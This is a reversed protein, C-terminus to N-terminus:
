KPIVKFFTKAEDLKNKAESYGPMPYGDATIRQKYSNFAKKFDDELFFIDQGQADGIARLLMDLKINIVAQQYTLSEPTQRQKMENFAEQDSKLFPNKKASKKLFYSNMSTNILYYAQEQTVEYPKQVQKESLARRIAREITAIEKKDSPNKPNLKLNYTSNAIDFIDKIKYKRM